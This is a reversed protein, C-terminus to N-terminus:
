RAGTPINNKEGKQKREEAANAAIWAFIGTTMLCCITAEHKRAFAKRIANIAALKGEPVTRMIDDVEIPAPIVTTGSGWRTSMKGTIKEAKPLGKDDDVEEFWSKKMLM